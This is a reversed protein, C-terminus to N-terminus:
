DETWNFYIMISFAMVILAVGGIYPNRQDFNYGGAWLVVTATIAPVLTAFARKAQNKVSM